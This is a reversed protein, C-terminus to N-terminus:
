CLVPSPHHKWPSVLPFVLSSNLHNTSSCSHLFLTILPYFPWDCTFLKSALLNTQNHGTGSSCWREQRILSRELEKSPIPERNHRCTDIHTHGSESTSKWGTWGSFLVSHPWQHQKHKHLPKSHRHDTHVVRYINPTHTHETSTGVPFIDEDKSSNPSPPVSCCCCSWRGWATLSLTM